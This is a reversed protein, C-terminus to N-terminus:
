RYAPFDAGLGLSRDAAPADLRLSRPAAVDCRQAAAVAVAQVLTQTFIGKPNWGQRTMEGDAQAALDRADRTPLAMLVPMLDRITERLPDSAAALAARVLERGPQEPRPDGPTAAPDFAALGTAGHRALWDAPDMGNPLRTLMAPRRQGRCVADIWRESGEAGPTDGDLAVVVKAAGSTTVRRAQSPSVSVGNATCPWFEALRDSSAASAAVALADIPGEVVVATTGHSAPNPSYLATSKDFTATRTPNRYKPTRADPLTTRGLLGAIHGSPSRVPVVLRGRFTDTLRGTRSRRSLDMALLEDATVGRGLLHRSMGAWPQGTHGVLPEGVQVELDRVDIGRHHRLYSVAFAHPVTTCCYEWALANIAYGREASVMPWRDPGAPARTASTSAAVAANVSNLRQVAERFGLGELRAVFDIVDGSAGCGFCHFRDKVGGVSLSPTSDDHFPCCGVFGHGRSSLKIGAAAVVEHIPHAARVAPIDVPGTRATTM